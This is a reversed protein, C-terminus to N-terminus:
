SKLAATGDDEADPTPRPYSPLDRVVAELTDRPVMVRRGLRRAPVLRDRILRWTAADDLGLVLAAEHVTLLLQPLRDVEVPESRKV